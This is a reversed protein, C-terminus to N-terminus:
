SYFKEQKTQNKQKISYMIFQLSISRPTMSYNEVPTRLLTVTLESVVLLVGELVWFFM